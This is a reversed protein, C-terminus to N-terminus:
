ELTGFSKWKGNKFDIQVSEKNELDELKFEVHPFNLLHTLDQREVTNDSSMLIFLGPEFHNRLAPSECIVPKNGPIKDMVKMFIKELESDWVLMLYVKAAGARLMRATDKSTEPNTEEYVTFGSGEIVPILGPSSTHFHPSIKIAVPRQARLQEIIRCAMTTKGSKTGTGAVILLNSYKKKVM